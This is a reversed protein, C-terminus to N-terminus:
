GELLTRISIIVLSKGREGVRVKQKRSITPVTHDLVLDYMRFDYVQVRRRWDGM